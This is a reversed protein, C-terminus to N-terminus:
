SEPGEAWVRLLPGAIMQGALPLMLPSLLESAKRASQVTEPIRPGAKKRHLPEWRKQHQLGERKQHQPEERKRRLPVMIMQSQRVLKMRRQNWQIEQDFQPWAAKM